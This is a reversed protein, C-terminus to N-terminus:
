RAIPLSYFFCDEAGIVLVPKGEWHAITPTTSHAALIQTHM